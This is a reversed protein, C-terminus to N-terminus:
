SLGVALLTKLSEQYSHRDQWNVQITLNLLDHWDGFTNYKIQVQQDNGILNFDSTYNSLLENTLNFSASDYSLNEGKIIQTLLNQGSENKSHLLEALDAALNIAQKRNASQAQTHVGTILAAAFATILLVILFLTIVTEILTIGAQERFINM